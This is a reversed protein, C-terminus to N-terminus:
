KICASPTAVPVQQQHMRKEMGTEVLVDAWQRNGEKAEEAVPIHYEDLFYEILCDMGYNTHQLGVRRM